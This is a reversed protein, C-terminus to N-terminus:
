GATVLGVFFFWYCTYVKIGEKVFPCLDSIPCKGDRILPFCQVCVVLHGCPFLAVNPLMKNCLVCLKIPVMVRQPPASVSPSKWCAIWRAVLIPSSYPYEIMDDDDDGRLAGGLYGLCTRWEMAVDGGVVQSVGAAWKLFKMSDAERDRWPCDSFGLSFRRVFCSRPTLPGDSRCIREILTAVFVCVSGYSQAGCRKYTLAVHRLLPECWWKIDVEDM